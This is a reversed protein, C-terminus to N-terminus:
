ISDNKKDDTSGGLEVVKSNNSIDSFRFAGNGSLNKLLEQRAEKFDDGVFGLRILWTRMTFKDNDTLTPKYSAYKLEKAYKCLM